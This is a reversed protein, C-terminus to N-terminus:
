SRLSPRLHARLWTALDHANEARTTLRTMREVVADVSAHVEGQGNVRLFTVLALWATRKNGDVFCHWHVLAEALIAGQEILDAGAYHAHQRPRLVAAELGDRHLVHYRATRPAVELADAHDLIIEAPSPYFPEAPAASVLLRKM